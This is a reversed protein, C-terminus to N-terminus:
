YMLKMTSIGNYSACDQISDVMKILEIKNLNELDEEGYGMSDILYNKILEKM